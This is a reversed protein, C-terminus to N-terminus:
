EQHNARAASVTAFLWRVASIPVSAGGLDTRVAGIINTKIDKAPDLQSPLLDFWDWMNNVATEVQAPTVTVGAGALDYANMKYFSKVAAQLSNEPYPM